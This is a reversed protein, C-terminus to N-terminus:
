VALSFCQEVAGGIQVNLIVICCSCSGISFYLLFVLVHTGILLLGSGLGTCLRSLMVYYVRLM